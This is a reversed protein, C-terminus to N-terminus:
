PTVWDRSAASDGPWVWDRSAATEGPWVWDRSAATEGPWVWDRSAATEGPWVWDRSAATEGPWVWDRSAAEDGPFAQKGIGGGDTREAGESVSHIDNVEDVRVSRAASVEYLSGDAGRVTTASKSRQM